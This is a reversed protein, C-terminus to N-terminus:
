VFLCVFLFFNVKIHNDWGGTLFINENDPHFKLCYVRQTNGAETDFSMKPKGAGLGCYEKELQWYFLLLDIFSAFYIVYNFYFQKTQPIEKVKIHGKM